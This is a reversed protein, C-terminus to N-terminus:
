NSFLWVKILKINTPTSENGAADLPIISIDYTTGISIETLSYSTDTTKGHFNGNVFVNYETAAFNDNATWSFDFATSNINILRLRTPNTSSNTNPATLISVTATESLEISCDGSLVNTLNLIKDVTAGSITVDVTGGTGIIATGSSAGSYTVVDGATGTITFIAEQGSSIPTESTLYPMSSPNVNAIASIGFLPASGCGMSSVNTLELSIDSIFGRLKVDITGSPRIEVTNSITNSSGTSDNFTYTYSVMDGSTGSITFVALEGSCFPNTSVSPTTIALNDVTVEASVGTFDVSCSGRMVNTIELTTNSNVNPVNVIAFDPLPHEYNVITVTEISGGNIRYTVIDGATGELYFVAEEGTCIVPNIPNITPATIALNDVTVEASVGTFDVSCSGRM